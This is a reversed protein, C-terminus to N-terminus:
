GHPKWGGLSSALVSPQYKAHRPVRGVNEDIANELKAKTENLGIQASTLENLKALAQAKAPSKPSFM